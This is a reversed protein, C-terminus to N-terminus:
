GLGLKRRVLSTIGLGISQLAKVGVGLTWKMSAFAIGATVALVNAAINQSVGLVKKAMSLIAEGANSAINRVTDACYSYAFKVASAATSVTEKAVEGIAKLGYNYSSVRGRLSNGNVNRQARYKSAYGSAVKSLRGRKEAYEQAAQGSRKYGPVTVTHGNRVYSYPQIDIYHCLVTRRM